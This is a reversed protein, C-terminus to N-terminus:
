HVHALQGVKNSVVKTKIQQRHHFLAHLYPEPHSIIEFV